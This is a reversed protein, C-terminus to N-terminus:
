AAGPEEYYVRSRAAWLIALTVVLLLLFLVWALASAYGLYGDQFATRYLYFAYFLSANNPGGNTMFQAQVIGAAFTAILATVTNFLIVPSVSPLTINWLRRLAGAGDIAAAEHLSRPVGKLAALFVIMLGGSAWVSLLVLSPIVTIESSLWPSTPLAAWDLLTNFLGFDPNYLWLWALASAVGPLISPLYYVSRLLGVGRLPQSLALAVCFSTVLSLPVALAAYLATVRLSQWFLPDDLLGPIPHGPSVAGAYNALGIWRPASGIQWDTLSIAASALMPGLQWLIFGLIAPLAFLMGAVAERRRLDLGKPRARRARRGVVPPTMTRQTQMM